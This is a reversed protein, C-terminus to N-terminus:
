ISERNEDCYEGIEDKSMNMIDEKSFRKNQIDEVIFKKGYNIGVITGEALISDHYENILDEVKYKGKHDRYLTSLLPWETSEPHLKIKRKKAKELKDKDIELEDFLDNLRSERIVDLLMEIEEESLGSKIYEEMAELENEDEVMERLRERSIKM